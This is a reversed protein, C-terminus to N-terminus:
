RQGERSYCMPIANLTNLMIRTGAWDIGFRVERLGAEKMAQRLATHSPSECYFMFYGGGGAGLIKGGLAGSSKALEYIRDFEPNSMKASFRRKVEWHIDMLEGFDSLNGSEFADFIQLGIEKIRHKLEIIPQQGQEQLIDLSRRRVGTYFLFTNRLFCEITSAEIEPRIIQANGSPAIHMATFGGFACLYPDQKGDGWGLRETVSFAEDALVAPTQPNGRYAHLVNLLSVACAGSSGLGTGAPTDAKFTVNVARDVGVIKLAERGINHKLEDVSDVAESETYQFHIQDDVRTRRIMADFHMDIAVGFVFGGHERYYSPLDTSGGGLPLRFPTRAIIM